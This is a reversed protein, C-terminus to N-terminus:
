IGHGRGWGGRGGRGGRGKAYPKDARLPAKGHRMRRGRFNTNYANTSIAAVRSPAMPLVHQRAAATNIQPVSQPPMRQRLSEPLPQLIEGDDSDSTVTSSPFMAAVAAQAQISIIESVRTIMEQMARQVGLIDGQIATIRNNQAAMDRGKAAMERRLAASDQLVRLLNANVKTLEMHRLRITHAVQRMATRISKLILTQEERARGTDKDLEDSSADDTSSSNSRSRPVLQGTPPQPPDQRRMSTICPINVPQTDCNVTSTPRAQRQVLHNSPGAEEPDHLIIKKEEVMVSPRELTKQHPVLGRDWAEEEMIVPGQGRAGCGSGSGAESCAGNITCDPKMHAHKTPSRRWSCQAHAEPYDKAVECAYKAERASRLRRMRTTAFRGGRVRQLM